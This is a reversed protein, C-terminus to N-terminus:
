LHCHSAGQQAAHGDSASSCQQVTTSALLMLPSSTAGAPFPYGFTACSTCTLTLDGTLAGGDGLPATTNINRTPNLPTFGFLSSICVRVVFRQKRRSTRLWTLLPLRVTPFSAKHTHVALDRWQRHWVRQRHFVARRPRQVPRLRGDIHFNRFHRQQRLRRLPNEV